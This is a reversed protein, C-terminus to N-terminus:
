IHILSLPKTSDGKPQAQHDNPKEHHDGDCEVEAAREYLEKYTLIPEWSVSKSHLLDFRRMNLSESSMFKPAFRALEIFTSACQMVMMNDSIKLEVFEKEKQRKVVVPHM